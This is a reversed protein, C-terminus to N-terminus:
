TYVFHPLEFVSDGSLLTEAVVRFSRIDNGLERDGLWAMVAFRSCAAVFVVVVIQLYRRRMILDLM